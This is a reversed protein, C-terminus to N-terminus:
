IHILSLVEIAIAPYSRETYACSVIVVDIDQASKNAEQMAIKAANVAFEAQHSLEDDRRAEIRPKMRSIDNVGDKVYIYRRNIGSAKEIFEASSLSKPDIEGSAIKEANEENFHEAYRNYTDVLEENTLVNPPNWVGTGSIVAVDSM